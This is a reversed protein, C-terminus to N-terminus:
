SNEDELVEKDIIPSSLKIVAVEIDGNKEFTIDDFAKSTRGNSYDLNFNDVLYEVVRAHYAIKKDGGSLKVKLCKEEPLNKALIIVGSRVLPCIYAEDSLELRTALAKSISFRKGNKSYVMSVSNKGNSAKAQHLRFDANSMSLMEQLFNKCNKSNTM